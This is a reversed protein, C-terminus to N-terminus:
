GSMGKLLGWISTGLLFPLEESQQWHGHATLDRDRGGVGLHVESFVM